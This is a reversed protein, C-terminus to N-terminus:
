DDAASTLMARLEASTTSEDLLKISGDAFLAMAGHPHHSSISPKSKDNIRLSMEDVSLDRPEAWFIDSDAIEAVLVTKAPGDTIQDLSRWEGARAAASPGVVMVYNTFGAGPQPNASPCAYFDHWWARTLALNGPADWPRSLDYQQYFPGSEIYPTIAVRWSHMPKGQADAIYPSPFCGHVDHYNQLALGIQKLHGACVGRRAAEQASRVAPLLFRFLLGFAVSCLLVFLLLGRLSFRLPTGPAPVLPKSSRNSM